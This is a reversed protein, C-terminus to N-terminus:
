FEFFRRMSIISGLSGIIVGIRGDIRRNELRYGTATDILLKFAVLNPQVIQLNRIGLNHSDFLFLPELLGIWGGELFFPWRISAMEQCWSFAHDPDRKSTFHDHYSDYKLDLVDRCIIALVAALGWTRVAAAIDFIRDSSTGGYDSRFVNKLKAAEESVEKTYSPQTTTVVYVDTYRSQQRRM